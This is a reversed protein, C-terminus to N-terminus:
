EQDKKLYIKNDQCLVIDANYVPENEKNVFTDTKYPNYYIEEYDDLNHPTAWTWTEAAVTAHVNKRKERRVRAQGSKSVKFECGKLICYQPHEIVKGRYKISFSNTHLNRYLYYKASKAM